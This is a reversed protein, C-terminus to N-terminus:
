CKTWVVPGTKFMRAVGISVAALMTVAAAWGQAARYGGESQEIAGGLPPGTLGAFSAVSFAMGMRTGVKNLKPTIATLGTPMLCQFGASAMGYLTTFIYLGTKDTVALWSYAVISTVLSTLILLNIPGTKFSLLPFLVRSPMGVGNVVTILTAAETYPMGIVQLGFSAIQFTKASQNIFYFPRQSSVYYLTYYTGWTFMFLGAVYTVYLPEKFAKFDVIPGATRPPLWPRMFTAALALGSLNLFGVVRATWAFGLKPLVGRILAPYVLGGASNSTTVIGLALARKKDFYTAVLAVSPTFIIGNGLGTLVGHTLMLRWYSADSLSMMFIGLLQIGAGVIFTVTFKGADLLRGSFAGVFFTLCVQVAGIWSIESATYNPLVTIYYGQFAGFSNIYGWTTFIVVWGMVVQTWAKTGGDPPPGYDVGSNTAYLVSGPVTM